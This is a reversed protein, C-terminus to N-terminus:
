GGISSRLIRGDLESCEPFGSETFILILTTFNGSFQRNSRNQHAKTGLHETSFHSQHGGGVPRLAGGVQRSAGMVLM